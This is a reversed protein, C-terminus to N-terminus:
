PQPGEVIVLAMALIGAIFGIISVRRYRAVTDFLPRYNQPLDDRNKRHRYSINFNKLDEHSLQREARRILSMHFFSLASFVTVVAVLVVFPYSFLRELKDL